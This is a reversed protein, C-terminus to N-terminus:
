HLCKHVGGVLGGLHWRAEWQSWAELASGESLIKMLLETRITTDRKFIYELHRRQAPDKAQNNAPPAEHM